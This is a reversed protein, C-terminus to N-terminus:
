RPAFRLSSGAGIQETEYLSESFDVSGGAPQVRLAPEEVGSVPLVRRFSLKAHSEPMRKLKEYSSDKFLEPVSPLKENDNPDSPKEKSEPFLDPISELSPTEDSPFNPLTPKPAPKNDPEPLTERNKTAPTDKLNPLPTAPIKAPPLTSPVKTNPPPTQPPSFLDDINDPVGLPSKPTPLKGSGPRTEPFLDPSAQPPGDDGEPRSGPASADPVSPVKKVPFPNDAPPAGLDDFPLEPLPTQVGGANPLPNPFGDPL